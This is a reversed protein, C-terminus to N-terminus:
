GIQETVIIKKKKQVGHKNLSKHQSVSTCDRGAAGRNHLRKRSHWAQVPEEQQAVSTCARGAATM